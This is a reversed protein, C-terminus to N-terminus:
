KDVWYLRIRGDPLEISDPVGWAQSRTFNGIGTSSERQWNLGNISTATWILEPNQRRDVYYMRYTDDDLRILTPDSGQPLIAPEQVFTLGDGSRYVKMGIHTVYLRVAGDDLLIAEPSVGLIGLNVRDEVFSWKSSSVEIEVDEDNNSNTKPKLIGSKLFFGAFPNHGPTASYYVRFTGGELPVATPDLANAGPVSIIPTDEMSWTLGDVSTGIYIVQPLASPAPSTSFLGVWNGQKAILIYPDVFIGTTRLGPEITFTVGDSSIASRIVEARSQFPAMVFLILFGFLFGRYLLNKIRQIFTNKKM